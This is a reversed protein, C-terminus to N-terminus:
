RGTEIDTLEIELAKGSFSVEILSIGLSTLMCLLSLLFIIEGIAVMNFFLSVMSCMAFLVSMVGCFQMRRILRIRKRLYYIQRELDTDSQDHFKDHLDRVLRALAVMRNTYALILISAAPFLLAPTHLSIDM